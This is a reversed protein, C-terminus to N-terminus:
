RGHGNCVSPNCSCSGGILCWFFFPRIEAPVRGELVLTCFSALSTLFQSDADGAAHLLLDKLHQPRLRDPGGASGNPFSRIARAISSPDVRPCSPGPNPSPPITTDRHPPTPAQGPSCVTESSHPALRDDSSAIRVAGRFDGQEIKSSVRKGLSYLEEEKARGARKKYKRLPIPDTQPQNQLSNLHPQPLSPHGRPPQPPPQPTPPSPGTLSSSPAPQSLSTQKPSRGSGPCRKNVPDHSRIKGLATISLERLCVSCVAVM